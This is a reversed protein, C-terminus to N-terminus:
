DKALPDPIAIENFAPPESFRNAKSVIEDAREKSYRGAQRLSRTYGWDGAGWWGGHEESWILYQQAMIKEEPIIQDNVKGGNM